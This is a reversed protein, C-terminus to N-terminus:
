LFGEDVLSNVYRAATSTSKIQLELCIERISPPIGDEMRKRIYEYVRKEKENM